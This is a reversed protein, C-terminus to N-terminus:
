LLNLGFDGDFDRLVAHSHNAESFTNGYEIYIRGSVVSYYHFRNSGKEVSGRWSFTKAVSDDTRYSAALHSPLASLYEGVIARLQQRQPDTMDSDQLGEVRTARTARKQKVTFIDPPAEQAVIARELQPENLSGLLSRATDEEAGLV